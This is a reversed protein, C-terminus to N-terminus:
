ESLGVVLCYQRRGCGFDYVVLLHAVREGERETVHLGLRPGAGGLPHLVDGLAEIVFLRIFWVCLKVVTDLVLCLQRGVALSEAALFDLMLLHLASTEHM